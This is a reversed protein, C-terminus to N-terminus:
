LKKKCILIFPKGKCDRESVVCTPSNPFNMSLIPLCFTCALVSKLVILILSLLANTEKSILLSLWLLWAQSIFFICHLTQDQSLIFALPLSLVHLDLPLAPTAISKAAVPALTRLAHAVHGYWPSLRHFRRRIGCLLLLSMEKEQFNRRIRIPERSM